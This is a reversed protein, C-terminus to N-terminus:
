TGHCTVSLGHGTDQLVLVRRGAFGYAARLEKDAGHWEKATRNVALLGLRKLCETVSRCIRGHGQPGCRVTPSPLLRQGLVMEPLSPVDYEVMFRWIEAMVGHPTALNHLYPSVHLRNLPCLM